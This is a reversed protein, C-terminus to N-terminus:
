SAGPVLEPPLLFRLTGRGIDLRPGAIDVRAIAGKRMPIARTGLLAGLLESFDPDHGVICPREAPGAALLIDAVADLDLAAALREDTAVPVGLAKAVIEATQVSRLRPSTIFLDPAEGRPLAVLLKALASAQRRGKDSLPREADDGRYKAPDGAHAHRLLHLATMADGGSIREERLFSRVRRDVTALTTRFAALREDETGEVAAPDTLSWHASKHAGPIVPCTDRADDCVTIVWDYSQDLVETVAKSRLGEGSLGAEDLVRMTLPNLGKPATGASFAEVAEGGRYRLLVEALVSRASNGTCVFLVRLPAREAAAAPKGKSAV